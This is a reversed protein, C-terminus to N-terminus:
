SGADTEPAVEQAQAAAEARKQAATKVGQRSIESAIFPYTREIQQLTTGELYSKLVQFRVNVFPEDNLKLIDITRQIRDRLGEALTPEPNVWLTAVDLVFWGPQITFPDLVVQSNGKNNNIRDLALRYNRWEYADMPFASKPRFHDVTGHFPVWFSSYACIEGYRSRLHPLCRVWYQARKFEVSSPRQNIRLFARGPRRVTADFDDPEPQPAVPIM